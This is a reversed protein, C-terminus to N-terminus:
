KRQLKKSEEIICLYVNKIALPHRLKSTKDLVVKERSTDLVLSNTEKKLTGIKLSLDYRVDLLEMIENDISDIKNRAELLKDM